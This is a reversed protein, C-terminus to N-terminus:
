VMEIMIFQILLDQDIIVEMTQLDTILDTILLDTILLDGITIVGAGILIDMGVMLLVLGLDLVGDMGLIIACLFVMLIIVTTTFDAIGLTTIFVPGM